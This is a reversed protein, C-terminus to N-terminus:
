HRHVTHCQRCDGTLPVRPDSHLQDAPIVPQTATVDAGMRLHCSRCVSDTQGGRVLSAGRARSHVEHCNSCALQEHGLEYLARDHCAGCLAAEAIPDPRIGRRDHPDHCTTCTIEADDSWLARSLGRAGVPQRSPNAELRAPDLPGIPHQDALDFGLYRGGGLTSAAFTGADPQALRTGESAHCRLCSQSPVSLTGSRGTATWATVDAVLLNAANPASGHPGHCSSCMGPSGGLEAESMWHQASVPAATVCLLLVAWLNRVDSIAPSGSM